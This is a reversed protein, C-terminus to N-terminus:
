GTNIQLKPHPHLLEHLMRAIWNFVYRVAKPLRWEHNLLAERFGDFASNGWLNLWFFAIGVLWLLRRIARWSRVLFWELEFQQKIGRTADEAGWRRAYARVYWKGTRGSKRAAPSVLLVWPEESNPYRWSIVLLFSTDSVEPLRVELTVNVGGKPWRRPRPCRQEAVLDKMLIERGDATTVKRDCRQRVVFAVGKKVLPGYLERRDFGRDLVWVGKKGVAEHVRLIHSLIEANEGTPAGAYVKLPELVLPFLQWRGVRTFAQFICYGNVIRGEPDSGDHVKGLGELHRAYEKNLDTTDATIITDDHVMAASRQLLEDALPSADWHESSLHGSLKKEAAHLTCKADPTARAIATLHVHGAIVLGRIM